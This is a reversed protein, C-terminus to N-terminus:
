VSVGYTATLRETTPMQDLTGTVSFGALRLAATPAIVPTVAPAVTAAPGACATLVAVFTLALM